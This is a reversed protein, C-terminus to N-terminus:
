RSGWSPRRRQVARRAPDRRLRRQLGARHLRHDIRPGPRDRRDAHLVVPLRHRHGRRGARRAIGCPRSARRTTPRRRGPVLPLTVLAAVAMQRRGGGVPPVGGLKHKILMAGVAYCLSAALIMVGGVCSTAAARSTWASSCRGRRAHRRRHRGRGLGACREDHDFVLALLATFIPAGSVLIGALQSDIHNEGFTILLFPVAVQVLAIACWGTWAGACRASRTGARPGADAAGRRRARHPHLRDRGRQLRRPRAQHVHVLRGLRRRGRDDDAVYPADSCGLARLARAM